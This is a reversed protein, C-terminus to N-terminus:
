RTLPELQAARCALHLGQQEAPTLYTFPAEADAAHLWRRAPQDQGLRSWVEYLYWCPRAQDPRELRALTLEGAAKCFLGEAPLDQSHDDIQQREKGLLYLGIGRHLHEQYSDDAQRALEMLRSHCHILQAQAAPGHQQAEAVFRELEGRAESYREVRVLLEAYHARILWQEPRAALYRGLHREAKQPVGQELWAAALSLHNRTMGPDVALSQEYWAIASEVQGDRMAAQGKEWLLGASPAASVVAPPPATPGSVLSEPPKAPFAHCSLSLLCMLPWARRSPM